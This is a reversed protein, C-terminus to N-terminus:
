KCIFNQSFKSRVLEAEYFNLSFDSDLRAWRVHCNQSKKQLLHVKGSILLTTEHSNRSNATEHPQARHYHENTPKKFLDRPHMHRIGKEDYKIRITDAFPDKKLMSIVESNLSKSEDDTPHVTGKGSSLKKALDSDTLEVWGIPFHKLNKFDDLINDFCESCVKESEFKKVKVPAKGTCNNCM